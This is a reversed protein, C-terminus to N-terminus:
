DCFCTLHELAQVIGARYGSSWGPHADFLADVHVQGLSAMRLRKPAADLFLQLRDRYFEFTRLARERKTWALFADFVAAATGTPAVVPKAAVRKAMLEHFLRKAETEETGLNHRTGAINVAWYGRDERFWPKPARGM